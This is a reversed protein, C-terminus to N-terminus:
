DNEPNKKGPKPNQTQISIRNIKRTEHKFVIKNIGFRKEGCLVRIVFVIYVILVCPNM